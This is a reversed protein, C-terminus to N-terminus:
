SMARKMFSSVGLRTFLAAIALLACVIVVQNMHPVSPTLASRLGESAYVLPNILVAWKMAPVADLGRIQRGLRADRRQERRCTSSLQDGNM